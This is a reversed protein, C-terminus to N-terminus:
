LESALTITDRLTAVDVVEGSKLPILVPHYVTTKNAEKILSMPELILRHLFGHVMGIFTLRQSRIEEGIHEYADLLHHTNDIPYSPFGPIYCYIM